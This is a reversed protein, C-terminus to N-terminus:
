ATLLWSCYSDYSFIKCLERRRRDDLTDHLVALFKIVSYNNMIKTKIVSPLICPISPFVLIIRHDCRNYSIHHRSLDIPNYIYCSVCSNNLSKVVVKIQRNDHTIGKWLRRINRRNDYIIFFTSVLHNSVQDSIAVSSDSKDASTYIIYM